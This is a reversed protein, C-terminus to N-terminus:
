VSIYSLSLMIFPTPLQKKLHPQSTFQQEWFCGSLSSPPMLKRLAILNTPLAPSYYDPHGLCFSTARLERITHQCPAPICPICASPRPKLLRLAAPAKEQGHTVLCPLQTSLSCQACFHLSFFPIEMGNARELLAVTSNGHFFM